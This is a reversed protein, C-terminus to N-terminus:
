LLDICYRITSLYLCMVDVSICVKLSQVYISLTEPKLDARFWRMTNRGKELAEGIVIVFNQPHSYCWTVLSCGIGNLEYTM